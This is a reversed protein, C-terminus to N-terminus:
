TINIPIRTFLPNSVPDQEYDMQAFLQNQSTLLEYRWFPPKTLLRNTILGKQRYNQSKQTFCPLNTPIGTFRAIEGLIM